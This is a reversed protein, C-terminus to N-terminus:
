CTYLHPEVNETHKGPGALRDLLEALELPDTFSRPLEKGNPMEPTTKSQPVQAIKDPVPRDLALCFPPFIFLVVSSSLFHFDRKKSWFVHACIM